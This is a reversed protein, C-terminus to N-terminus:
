YSAAAPVNMTVMIAPSAVSGANTVMVQSVFGEHPNIQEPANLALDIDGRGYFHAAGQKEKGSITTNPSGILATGDDLALGALGDDIVFERTQQWSGGEESFVYANLAKEGNPDTGSAGILSEKGDISI